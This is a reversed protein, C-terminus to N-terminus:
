YGVAVPTSGGFSAGVPYVAFDNFVWNDQLSSFQFPDFYDAFGRHWANVLGIDRRELRFLSWLTTDPLANFFADITFRWEHGASPLWDSQWRLANDAPMDVPRCRLELGEPAPGPVHNYSHIKVDYQDALTSLSRIDSQQNFDRRFAVKYNRGRHAM